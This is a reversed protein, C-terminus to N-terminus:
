TLLGRLDVQPTALDTSRCVFSTTKGVGEWSVGPGGKPLRRFFAEKAGSERLPGDLGDIAM